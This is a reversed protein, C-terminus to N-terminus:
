ENRSPEVILLLDQRDVILVEGGEEVPSAARASWREGDAVVSGIFSDEESREFRGAVAKSGILAANGTRARGIGFLTRQIWKISPELVKQLMFAFVIDNLAVVVVFVLVAIFSLLAILGTADM